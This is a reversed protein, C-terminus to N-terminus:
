LVDGAESQICVCTWHECLRSHVWIQEKGLGMPFRSLCYISTVSGGTLIHMENTQRDSESVDGFDGACHRTLLNEVKLHAARIAEQAAATITVRGPEFRRENKLWQPVTPM